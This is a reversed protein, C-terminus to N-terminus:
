KSRLERTPPSRPPSEEDLVTQRKHHLRFWVKGNPQNTFLTALGFTEVYGMKAPLRHIFTHTKNTTTGSKSYQVLHDVTEKQRTESRGLYALITQRSCQNFDTILKMKLADYSVEREPYFRAVLAECTRLVSRKKYPKHKIKPSFVKQYLHKEEESFRKPNLVEGQKQTSDQTNENSTQPSQHPNM